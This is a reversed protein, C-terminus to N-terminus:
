STGHILCGPNRGALRWSGYVGGRVWHCSCDEDLVVAAPRAQHRGTM